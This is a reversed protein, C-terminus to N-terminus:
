TGIIVIDNTQNNTKGEENKWKKKRRSSIDIDFVMGTDNRETGFIGKPRAGLTTGAKRTCNTDYRQTESGKQESREKWM